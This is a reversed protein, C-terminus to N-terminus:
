VVVRYSNVLCSVFRKVLGNRTLCARFNHLTVFFTVVSNPISLLALILKNIYFIFPMPLQTSINSKGVFPLVPCFESLM